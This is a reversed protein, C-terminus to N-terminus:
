QCKRKSQTTATDRFLRRLKGASNAKERHKHQLGWLMKKQIDCWVFIGVQIQERSKLVPLRKLMAGIQAKKMAVGGPHMTPTRRPCCPLDEDAMKTAVVGALLLHGHEICMRRHPGETDM